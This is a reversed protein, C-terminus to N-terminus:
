KVVKCFNVPWGDILNRYWSIGQHNSRPFVLKGSPYEGETKNRRLIPSATAMKKSSKDFQALDPPCDTVSDSRFIGDCQHISNANPNSRIDPKNQGISGSRSANGSHNSRRRIQRPKSPPWRSWVPRWYRTQASVVDPILMAVLVSLVSCLFWVLRAMVFEGLNLGPM